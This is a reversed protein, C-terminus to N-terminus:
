EKLTIFIKSQEAYVTDVEDQGHEILTYPSNIIYNNTWIEKDGILISIPTDEFEECILSYVLDESGDIIWAGGTNDNFFAMGAGFIGSSTSEWAEGNSDVSMWYTTNGDFDAADDFAVEFTYVDFGFNSGVFETSKM